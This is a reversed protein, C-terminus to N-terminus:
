APWVNKIQNPSSSLRRSGPTAAAASLLTFGIGSFTIFYWKTYRKFLTFANRPHTSHVMISHDTRSQLWPATHNSYNGLFPVTHRTCHSCPGYIRCIRLMCYQLPSLVGTHRPDNRSRPRVCPVACPLRLTSSMHPIIQNRLKGVHSPFNGGTICSAVKDWRHEAGAGQPRTSYSNPSATVTPRRSTPTRDAM